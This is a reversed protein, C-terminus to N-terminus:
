ADKLSNELEHPKIFKEFSVDLKLCNLKDSLMKNLHKVKLNKLESLDFDLIFCNNKLAIKKVLGKSDSWSDPNGTLGKKSIFIGNNTNSVNMLSYFKGVYTVGVTENYNKCEVLFKKPLSPYLRSRYFYGKESLEIFLDIENTKTRLNQKIFYLKHVEFIKAILNELADGIDKTSKFNGSVIQDIAIDINDSQEKTYELGKSIIDIQDNVFNELKELENM